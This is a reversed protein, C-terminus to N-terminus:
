RHPVNLRAQTPQIKQGKVACAEEKRLLSTLVSGDPRLTDGRQRFLTGSGHLPDAPGTESAWAGDIKGMAGAVQIRTATQPTLFMREGILASRGTGRAQGARNPATLHPFRRNLGTPTLTEDKQWGSPGDSRMVRWTRVQISNEM